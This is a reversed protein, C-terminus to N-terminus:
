LQQLDAGCQFLTGAAPLCRTLNGFSPILLSSMSLEFAASFRRGKPPGAECLPAGLSIPAAAQTPLHQPSDRGVASPCKGPKM